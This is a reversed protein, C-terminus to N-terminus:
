YVMGGALLADTLAQGTDQADDSAGASAPLLCGSRMAAMVAQARRRPPLAAFFGLLDDDEGPTLTLKVRIVVKPRTRRPRGRPM